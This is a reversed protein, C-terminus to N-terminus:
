PRMRLIRRGAVREASRGVSRAEEAVEALGLRVGDLVEALGATDVEQERCAKAIGNLAHTSQNLLYGLSRVDRELRAATRADVLVQGADSTGKSEAAAHVLTRVLEARGMGFASSAERLAAEDEPGLRVEFRASYRAM